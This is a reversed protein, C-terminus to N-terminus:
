ARDADRAGWGLVHLPALVGRKPRPEVRQGPPRPRPEQAVVHSVLAGTAKAVQAPLDIRLWHSASAPLTSVLIEDHRKPDYADIASVLPDCTGLSGEVELGAERALALARDLREQATLREEPGPGTRPVVFEFRAPGREVRALLARRLDESAATRNTLVLVTAKM